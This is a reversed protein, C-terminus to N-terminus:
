RVVAEHCSEGREYISLPVRCQRQYMDRIRLSAPGGSVGERDGGQPDSCTATSRAIFTGQGRLKSCIRVEAM